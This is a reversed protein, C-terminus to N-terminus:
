GTCHLNEAEAWRRGEVVAEKRTTYPPKRIEVIDYDLEDCVVFGIRIKKLVLAAKCAYWGKKGWYFSIESTGYFKRM